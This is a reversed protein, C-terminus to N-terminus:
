LHLMCTIDNNSNSKGLTSNYYNLALNQAIGNRRRGHSIVSSTKSSTSRGSNPTKARKAEVALELKFTEQRRKENEQEFNRLLNDM